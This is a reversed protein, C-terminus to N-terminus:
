AQGLEAVTSSVMVATITATGSVEIEYKDALYGGPLRFPRLSAVSQTHQLVGDAYLKLTVPYASAFVQAAGLNHPYPMTFLKSKWIATKASGGEWQKIQGDSVVSLTGTAPNHYGASANVDHLTFDGTQTDYIFGGGTTGFFGVVKSDHLYAHITSPDLAQWDAQTLIGATALQIGNMGAVMLGNITPYVCTYGIDVFGRKSVCAYGMELKEVVVSGPAAAQALYPTGKTTILINNGYSGIAVNDYDLPVQYSVPWAHPLYPESFCLLNKSFGALCGNPLAILGALDSPPADWTTSALVAGLSASAVADNYTATAVAVTAVYQYETTGSGTNTRYIKKHTVNYAGTPAGLMGTVDVTQGPQITVLGSPDSPPGEEGYASVYTYVYARTEALTTDTDTPTGAATVTPDSAPAPLGLNYAVSPYDATSTAVDNATMKPVGDGTWYRRDWTDDALPSRVINVDTIWNFWKTAYPYLSLITGAKSPAVGTGLGMIPRISGMNLRCNVANQAMQDSLQDAAISPAMGKFQTLRLLM